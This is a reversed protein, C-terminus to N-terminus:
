GTMAAPTTTRATTRAKSTARTREPCPAGTHLPTCLRTGERCHPGVSQPQRTYGPEESARSLAVAASTAAAEIAQQLGLHGSLPSRVRASSTSSASAAHRPRESIARTSFHADFPQAAAASKAGPKARLRGKDLAILAAATAGQGSTQTAPKSSTRLRRARYTVNTHQRRATTM